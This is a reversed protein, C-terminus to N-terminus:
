CVGQVGQSLVKSIPKCLSTAWSLKNNIEQGLYGSKEKPIVDKVKVMRETVM